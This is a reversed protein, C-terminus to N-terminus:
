QKRNNFEIFIEAFFDIHWKKTFQNLPLYFAQEKYFVSCQVGRQLYYAKLLDVNIAEPLKFLYVGPVNYDDKSFYEECGLQSFVKNYYDNISHRYEVWSEIENFYYGVVNSIYEEVKKDEKHEIPKDSLLFGGIQIPFFKSFSFVSYQAISGCRTKNKFKSAFAFACDEILTKDNNFGQIRNDTYGFEHNVMLIDYDTTKRTWQNKKEITKTVCSSIYFNDSTTQILVNQSGTVSINNLALELAKRGSFTLTVFKNPYLEELRKKLDFNYKSNILYNKAIDEKRFPIILFAPHNNEIFDTVFM